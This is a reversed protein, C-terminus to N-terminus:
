NPGNYHNSQGHNHVQYNANGNNIQVQLQSAVYNRWRNSRLRDHLSRFAADFNNFLRNSINPRTSILRCQGHSLRFYVDIQQGVQNQLAMGIMRANDPTSFINIANDIITYGGANQIDTRIRNAHQQLQQTTIQQKNNNQM